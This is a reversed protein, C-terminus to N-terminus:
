RFYGNVDAVLHVTGAGNYMSASGRGGVGPGLGVVVANPVAVGLRYNLNSANPRASGTPWVTTFGNTTTAETSTVNLVVTRASRPVNSGSQGGIAVDISSREAVPRKPAGKGTRTDLVRAPSVPFFLDGEGAYYGALDVILHVSGTNTFLSIRGGAGVKVTVLNPVSAGPQLNLNSALPRPEGAPWVTVFGDGSTAQTSTVNVVVATADPPVGAVGAVPLDLRERTASKGVLPQGAPWGAPVNAGRTDLLRVPSVATFRSGAAAVADGRDRRWVHTTEGGEGSGAFVGDSSFAVYRGSGDLSASTSEEEVEAGGSRVSARETVRGLRDRVFVDLAFNFDNDVLNEADSEFAVYRGDASISPAQNDGDGPEGTSSVSVLETRAETRDRLYIDAGLEDPVPTLGDADSEFAVYRGDPTMAPNRSPLDAQTGDTAVSVRETVGAVRDRVFVDVVGNTDGPVLDAGSSEFAVFRGDDSVAVTGYQASQGNSQTGGPGVSVREITSSTRDLLFVDFTGNTDGPVLNSSSDAFAVWRGDASIAAAGTEGDSAVGGLGRTLLTTTGATRDRLYLDYGTDTDAPDLNTARSRFVVYRGDASVAEALSEANASGGDSRVSALTTQNTAPVRVYVDTVYNSDGLAPEICCASFAVTTADRSQRPSFGGNALATSGTASTPRVSIRVTEASAAAAPPAPAAVTLAAALM